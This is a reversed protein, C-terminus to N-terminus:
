EGKRFFRQKSKGTEKDYFLMEYGFETEEVVTKYVTRATEVFMDSMKNGQKTIHSVAPCKKIDIILEDAGSEFTVDDIAEETEYLKRFYDELASLGKEKVAQTLPKHFVRAYDVLYEIVADEGYLKAIYDIGFNLGTHFDRHLYKNDSAKRVMKEM